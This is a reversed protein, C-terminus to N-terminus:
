VIQFYSGQPSGFVTIGDYVPVSEGRYITRTINDHVCDIYKTQAATIPIVVRVAKWITLTNHGFIM